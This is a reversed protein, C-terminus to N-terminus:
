SDDLDDMERTLKSCTFALRSSSYNFAQSPLFFLTNCQILTAREHFNSYNLKKKVGVPKLDKHYKKAILSIDCNFYKSVNVPASETKDRKKFMTM